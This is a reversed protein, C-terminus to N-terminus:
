WGLMVSEKRPDADGHYVGIEPNVLIPAFGNRVAWPGVRDVRHGKDNL